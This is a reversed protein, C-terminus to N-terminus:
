RGDTRDARDTRYVRGRGFWPVVGVVRRVRGADHDEVLAIGLGVVPRQMQQLGFERLVAIVDKDVAM